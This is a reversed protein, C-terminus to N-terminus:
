SLKIDFISNTLDSFDILDVPYQDYMNNHSIVFAQECQIIENQKEIVAIAKERKLQDFTADVEDLLPINYETLNQISLAFSIAMNLFSQEGQSAYSIDPITIGNKIYPIKFSDGTIEFDDLQIIDDEHYAIALLDNAIEKTDKLYMKIHLLPVGEKTSLASQLIVYDDYMEKCSKLEKELSLYEQYNNESRNTENMLFAKKQELTERLKEEKEKESSLTEKKQVKEEMEKMLQFIEGYSEVASITTELSEIEEKLRKENERNDESLSIKEEREEKIKENKEKISAIEEKLYPIKSNKKIDDIKHRVEEIEKQRKLYINYEGIISMLENIKKEDYICECDCIRKFVRKKLFMAQYEDPLKQIFLQNQKFEEIIAIINDHVINMIQYYEASKPADTVPKLDKVKMVDHFLDKYPCSVECDIKVKEYKDILTDLYTKNSREKKNEISLLRATVFEGVNIKDDMLKMVDRIPERGFEYTVNLERQINKLNIVFEDLEEPKFQIIFPLGEFPDEKDKKLLSMLYDELSNLNANKIEVDLDRIKLMLEQELNDQEKMLREIEKSLFEDSAYQYQLKEEKEKLEKRFREVNEIKANEDELALRYRSEKKKLKRLEEKYDEPLNLSNIEFSLKHISEVIKEIEKEYYSIGDKLEEIRQKQKEKDEINLKNMKDIIHSMVVKLDRVDASVKKYHKLYNDVSPLMKSMFNKRETGKLRILNTVNDGLRILKLYDMDIHLVDSVISKFSTVNGNPNLENGNLKFYSKVSHSDKNVSYFHEIDITDPGNIIIIRKYGPVHDMILQNNERIDLNGLTAFPTLCSLLSTKGMGNPGTILCITNERKSFDIEIRKAKLGTNINKFNELCIYKIWM